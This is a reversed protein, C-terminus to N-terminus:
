STRPARSALPKCPGRSRLAGISVGGRLRPQTHASICAPRLAPYATLSDRTGRHPVASKRSSTLGLTKSIAILAAECVIEWGYQRHSVDRGLKARLPTIAQEIFPFTLLFVEGVVPLPPSKRSKWGRHAPRCM